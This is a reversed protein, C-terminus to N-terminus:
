RSRFTGAPFFNVPNVWQGAPSRVAFHLHPGTSRGTNGSLGVLQGQAVRQGSGVLISSLHLYHWLYGAADKIIVANGTIEGKGQDAQYLKVVQGARASWVRTGVPVPLDVGEHFQPKHTKPNIRPGFWSSVGLSM